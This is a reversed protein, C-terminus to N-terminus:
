WRRKLEYLLLGAFGIGSLLLGASVGLWFERM